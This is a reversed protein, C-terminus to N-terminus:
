WSVTWYDGDRQDRTFSLTFGESKLWNVGAQSLHSSNILLTNQGDMVAQKLKNRLDNKVNEPLELLKNRLSRLEDAFKPVPKPEDDWYKNM